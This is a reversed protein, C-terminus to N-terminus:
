LKVISLPGLLGAELLPKGQLLRFPAITKTYRKDPPLLQDGILRNAWTNTVEIQITNTGKRIAKTVDARYPYTWIIGCSVGNVKVEAINAVRGLELFYKSSRTVDEALNIEKTYGATGSFYRIATDDMKSWDTLERFQFRASDSSGPTKFVVEWNSNLQPGSVITRVESIMPPAPPHQAIKHLVIFYSGNKELQMSVDTRRNRNDIKWQLADQVEGTVPNWIEPMKGTQRLSVIVDKVM